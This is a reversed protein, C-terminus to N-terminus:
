RGLLKKASEDMMDPTWRPEFVLDVNAQKVGEVSAVANRAQEKLMSAMPCNPVTLSMKVQVTDDDNIVIDYILGLSVVDIGIEIDIVTKLADVIQEKTITPM